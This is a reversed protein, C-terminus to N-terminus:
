AHRSSFLLFARIFPEIDGDLVSQVDSSSFNSRHDKVLNYPHLVYSRIQSGWTSEKKEGVVSSLEQEREQVAMDYLRSRLVHMATQRNMHQSRENQCTVVIGTPIHTIRVASDTRNVYQGGAGSARFTDVKLDEPRINIDVDDTIEPTVLVSAFSTHRRHASDFPSIRVLRHIGGESRLWGYSYAGEVLLVASKIGQEFDKAVDLVKVSFKMREAFRMYMRMLMGGWDQADLGGTGSHLTLIANSLDYEGSMLLSFNERELRSSLESSLREFESAIEADYGEDLLEVMVSLEDFTSEVDRYTDIKARVDSLLKLTGERSPNDWFEASSTVKLLEQSKKELSAIDFVKGCFM